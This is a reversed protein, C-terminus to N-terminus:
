VLEPLTELQQTEIGFRVDMVKQGASDYLEATVNELSAILLTLYSFSDKVSYKQTTYIGQEGYRLLFSDVGEVANVSLKLESVSVGGQVTTKVEYSGVVRTEAEARTGAIPLVDRPVAANIECEDV